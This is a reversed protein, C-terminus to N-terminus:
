LRVIQPNARSSRGLCRLNEALGEECLRQNREVGLASGYLPECGGPRPSGVPEREAHGKSLSHPKVVASRERAWDNRGDQPLLQVRTSEFRNVADLSRIVPRDDEVECARVSEKDLDDSPCEDDVFIAGAHSRTRELDDRLLRKLRYSERGYRPLGPMSRTLTRGNSVCRAAQAAKIRPSTSM